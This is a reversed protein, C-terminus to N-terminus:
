LGLFEPRPSIGSVLSQVHDTDYLITQGWILEAISDARRELTPPLGPPLEIQALDVIHGIEHRLIADIRSLDQQLLKSSLNVHFWSGNFITTAFGRDSEFHKSTGFAYTPSVQNLDPIKECAENWRTVLLHGLDVETM